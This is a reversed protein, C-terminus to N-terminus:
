LWPGRLAQYELGVGLRHVHWRLEQLQAHSLLENLLWGGLRLIRRGGQLGASYVGGLRLLSTGHDASLRQGILARAEELAPREFGRFRLHWACGYPPLGSLRRLRLEAAMQRDLADASLGAGFLEQLRESLLLPEAAAGDAASYLRALRLALDLPQPWDSYVSAKEESSHLIVDRKIYPLPPQLLRASGFLAPAAALAESEPWPQEDSEGQILLDGPGPRASELGAGRAALTMLGCRGCRLEPESLECNPCRYAGAAPSYHVAGSGCRPCNVASGCEACHLGHGSGLRRYYELRPAGDATTAADAPEREAEIRVGLGGSSGDIASLGLELLDVRCDLEAPQSAAALLLAPQPQLWPEGHPEFQPHGPDLLIVRDFSAYAALKWGSAAAAALLGRGSLRAAELARLLMAAGAAGGEHRFRWLQAAQEALQPWLRDLMWAQPAILLLRQGVNLAQRLEAALEGGADLPPWARQAYRLGLRAIQPWSRVINWRPDWSASHWEIPQPERGEAATSATPEEPAAAAKTLEKLEPPRAIGALYSGPLVWDRAPLGCAQAQEASLQYSSLLTPNRRMRQPDTSFQAELRLLGAACYEALRTWGLSKLLKRARVTTLTGSLAAVAALQAGGEHQELAAPEPISLELRLAKAPGEFFLHGAVEDPASGALEAIDALVPGLRPWASLEVPILPLLAVDVPPQPDPHLLLGCELSGRFSVACLQGRALGPPGSYSYAYAATGRAILAVSYALPQLCILIPM